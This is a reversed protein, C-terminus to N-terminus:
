RDRRSRCAPVSCLTDESTIRVASHTSHLVVAGREVALTGAEAGPLPTQLRLTRREWLADLHGAGVVAFNQDTAFGTVFTRETTMTLPPDDSLRTRSALSVNQSMRTTIPPAVGVHM